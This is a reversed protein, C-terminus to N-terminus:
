AFLVAVLEDNFGGRPLRRKRSEFTRVPPITEEQPSSLAVTDSHLQDV